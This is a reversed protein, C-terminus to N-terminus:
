TVPAGLTGFNTLATINKAVRKLTNKAAYFHIGLSILGVLESPHRLLYLLIKGILVEGQDSFSYSIALPVNMSLPDAIARISLFPLNHLNAVRAIAASEMDLAIAGTVKAIQEKDRSSSVITRSEAMSGVRVLMQRSYLIQAHNIWDTKTDIVANDSDVCSNALVLDGPKLSPDLAAACGWSILRSVGSEVLLEAAIRANEFGGGSYVVLTKDDLRGVCGKELRKSTLTSLEELLAVVIGTIM